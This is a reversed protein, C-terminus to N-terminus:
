ADVIFARHSQLVSRSELLLTSESLVSTRNAQHLLGDALRDMMSTLSVLLRHSILDRCDGLIRLYEPNPAARRRDSPAAKPIGERPQGLPGDHPTQPPMRTPELATEM